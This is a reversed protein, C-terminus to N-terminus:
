NTLFTWSGTPSKWERTGSRTMGNVQRRLIPILERLAAHEQGNVRTALKRVHASFDAPSDFPVYMDLERICDIIAAAEYLLAALKKYGDGETSM